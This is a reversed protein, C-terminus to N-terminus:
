SDLKRMEEAYKKKGMNLGSFRNSRMKQSM